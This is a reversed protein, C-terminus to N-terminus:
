CQRIPWSSRVQFLEPKLFQHFGSNKPGYLGLYFGLQSAKILSIGVKCVLGTALMGNHVAPDRVLIGGNGKDGWFGLFQEPEQLNQPANNSRASIM